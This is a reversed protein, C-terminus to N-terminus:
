KKSINEANTLDTNSKRAKWISYALVALALLAITVMNHNEPGVITSGIGLVFIGSVVLLIIKWIKADTSKQKSKRDNIEEVAKQINITAEETGGIMESAKPATAPVLVTGGCVTCKGGNSRWISYIFAIPWLLFLWLFLEMGGSGRRKAEGVTGCIFCVVTENTKISM